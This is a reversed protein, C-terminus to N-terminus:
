QNAVSLRHEALLRFPPFSIFRARDLLADRERWIPALKEMAQALAAPALNVALTVHPVWNGPRYYDWCSNNFAAMARHFDQHLQLLRSTAVPAVFLVSREHRFVGLTGLHIHLPEIGRVFGAVADGFREIDIEDYAALSIHPAQGLRRYTEVGPEAELRDCLKDLATTDTAALTLEVSYTM